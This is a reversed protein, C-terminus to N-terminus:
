LEGGVQGAGEAALENPILAADSSPASADAGPHLPPSAPPLTARFEDESMDWKAVNCPMCATLLNADEGSGGQSRPTRHDITAVDDGRERPFASRRVPKGCYGCIMGDRRWIRNRKSTAVCAM